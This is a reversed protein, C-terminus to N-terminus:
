PKTLKSREFAAVAGAQFTREDALAADVQARFTEIASLQAATPAGDYQEITDRLYALQEVPRAPQRYGSSEPNRLRDLLRAAGEAVARARVGVEGPRNLFPAADHTATELRAAAAEADRQAGAIAELARHQKRFAEPAVPHKPDMRVVVSARATAAGDAVEVAYTGPVAKPGTIALPYFVYYSRPDQAVPAGGPPLTRLDWVARNLGAHAPTVFEDVLMEGSYVRIRVSPKQKGRVAPTKALYFTLLAGEPKSEALFEGRGAERPFGAAFRTAPMPDFLYVDRAKTQALHQLPTLDDLVYFGRGHTGVILDNDRPHVQVDYVPVHPVNLRLDSWDAGDDFSVYLGRETGSYLVHPNRPDERVIHV